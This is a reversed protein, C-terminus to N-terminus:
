YSTSKDQLSKKAEFHTIADSKVNDYFCRKMDEFRDLCPAYSYDIPTYLDPTQDCFTLCKSGATTADVQSQSCCQSHDKGQAACFQMEPLFEIPCESSGFFMSELVGKNYVNFHCKQVCAPPLQREECCVHFLHNPNTLLQISKETIPTKTDNWVKLGFINGDDKGDFEQVLDGSVRKAARAKAKARCGCCGCAGSSGCADTLILLTALLVFFIRIM